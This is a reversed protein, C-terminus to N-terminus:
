ESRQKTFMAGVRVGVYGKTQEWWGRVKNTQGLGVDIRFLEDAIRREEKTKAQDCRWDHRCTAMPHRWKPFDFIPVYQFIGSSAGNYRYGAPIFGDGCPLPKALEMWDLLDPVSCLYIRGDWGELVEKTQPQFYNM